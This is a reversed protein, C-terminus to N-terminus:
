EKKSSEKFILNFAKCKEINSFGSKRESFCLFCENDNVHIHKKVCFFIKKIEM